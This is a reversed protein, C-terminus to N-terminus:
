LLRIISGVDYIPEKNLCKVSVGYKECFEVMRKGDPHLNIDGNIALVNSEILGSAGGIFGYDYGSLKVYGKTIKLVDIGANECASAIGSDETIIANDSVICTSCKAYGQKVHIINYGDNLANQIVKESTFKKHCILNKGVVACNLSVNDPYTLIRASKELEQERGVEIAKFNTFLEKVTSLVYLKEEIKLVHLDPHACIPHEFRRNEPIELLKYGSSILERKSTDSM